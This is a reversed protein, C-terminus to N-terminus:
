DFIMRETVDNISEEYIKKSAATERNRQYTRKKITRILHGKANETGENWYSSLM